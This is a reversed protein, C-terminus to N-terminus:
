AWYGIYWRLITDCILSLIVTVSQMFFKEMGGCVKILQFYTSSDVIVDEENEDKIIRGDEEKTM